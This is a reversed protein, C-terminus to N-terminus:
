LIQQPRFFLIDFQYSTTISLFPELMSCHVCMENLGYVDTSEHAHSTNTATLIMEKGSSKRRLTMDYKDQTKVQEEGGKVRCRM